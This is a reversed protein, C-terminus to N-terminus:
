AKWPNLLRVGRREFDATNRTALAAGRSHAIAAIQADLQTMPRGRARSAAAIQAFVEAADSDFPLVREAFDEAFVAKAASELSQRRRGKAMLAIGYLIEAQTVTTTFLSSAPYGAWWRLVEPSPAPRMVESVVNTDLVIM